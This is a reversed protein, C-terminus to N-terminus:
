KQRRNLIHCKGGHIKLNHCNLENLRNIGLIGGDCKFFFFDLFFFCFAPTASGGWLHHSAVGNPRPLNPWGRAPWDPPPRVVGQGKPTTQGGRSQGFQPPLVVWLSGLPPKAEGQALHEFKQKAWPAASSGRPGSPTTRGGRSPRGPHQRVVGPWVPHDAVM